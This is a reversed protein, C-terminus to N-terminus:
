LEAHQSALSAAAEAAAAELPGGSGGGSGSGSGGLVSRGPLRAAALQSMGGPGMVLLPLFIHISEWLIAAMAYLEVAM